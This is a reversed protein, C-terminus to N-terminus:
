FFLLVRISKVNIGRQNKKKEGGSVVPVHFSKTNMGESEDVLCAFGGKDFEVPLGSTSDLTQQLFIGNSNSSCIVAM